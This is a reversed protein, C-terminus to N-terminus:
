TLVSSVNLKASSIFYSQRLSHQKSIVPHYEVLSVTRLQHQLWPFSPSVQWYQLHVVLSVQRVPLSPSQDYPVQKDYCLSSWHLLELSTLEVEAGGVLIYIANTMPAVLVFTSLLELIQLNAFSSESSLRIRQALDGFHLFDQGNHGYGM